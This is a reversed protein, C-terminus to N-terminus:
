EESIKIIMVDSKAREVVRKSVSGLLFRQMKTKAKSGLVILDIENEKAYDLICQAPIGSLVKREQIELNNQNFMNSLKDLAREAYINQQNEIALLWNTDLTGELFLLDPNEVVTCLYIEKDIINLQLITNKIITFSTETGDTTFLIRKGCNAVKSIFSPVESITLVERSVSGLWMQLGKKGHSGMVVEDYIGNELQELISEVAAGCLKIKQGFVFGLESILKESYDLINDAINRCSTVFGTDEIVTDDPLFSWDIVCIVDVITHEQAWHAFNKLADYSIKSGDTCFLAKM